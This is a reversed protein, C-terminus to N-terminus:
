RHKAGSPMITGTLFHTENELQKDTIGQVGNLNAGSLDAQRLDTRNLIAESLNAGSLNVSYLTTMSLIAGSLNAGSLDAVYLNAKYLNAESLSAGSLNASYLAAMSLYASSLDAGSLDAGSLDAKYLNAGSLNAGSLNAAILNAGNLIAGHLDLVVTGTILGAEYLFDLLHAKRDGDLRPLVELTRARAVTRSEDGPHSRSLPRKPDLLLDSMRDIYTDLLTERTQDLARADDSQHQDASQLNAQMQQWQTLGFGGVVLVAPVILLQLWDWLTKPSGAVQGTAAPPTAPAGFGTWTSGKTYGAWLLLGLLGLLAGSLVGARWGWIIGM